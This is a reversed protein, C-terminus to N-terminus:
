FAVTTRGANVSALFELLGQAYTVQDDWMALHSGQPCNLYSGLKVQTSVWKMHAPDMTDHTAGPGGHLLLLKVRPSNGFRKTWVKFAGQPTQIPIMRVGGTQVAGPAPAFYTKLSPGSAPAAPREGCGLALFPLLVPLRRGLRFTM